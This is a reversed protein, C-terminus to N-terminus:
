ASPTCLKKPPSMKKPHPNLNNPHLHRELLATLRFGSCRCMGGVQDLWLNQAWLDKQGVGGM